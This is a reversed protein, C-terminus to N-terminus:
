RTPFKMKGNQWLKKVCELVANWIILDKKINSTNSVATISDNFFFFCKQSSGRVNFM